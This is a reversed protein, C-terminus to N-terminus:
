HTEKTGKFHYEMTGIRFTYEFHDEITDFFGFHQDNDEHDVNLHIFWDTGMMNQMMGNTFNYGSSMHKYVTEFESGTLCPRIFDGDAFIDLLITHNFDGDIFTVEIQNGHKRVDATTTERTNTTTNKGATNSTITGKYVGEIYSIENDKEGNCALPVFSLLVLLVLWLIKIHITKM